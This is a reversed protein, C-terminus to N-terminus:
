PVTGGAEQVKEMVFRTFKPTASGHNAAAVETVEPEGDRPYVAIRVGLGAQDM